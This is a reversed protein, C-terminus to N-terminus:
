QVPRRSVLHDIGRGGVFGRRYGPNSFVSSCAAGCVHGCDTVHHDLSRHLLAFNGEGGSFSHGGVPVVLIASLEMGYGALPDGLSMFSARAIGALRCDGRRFRLDSLGSERHQDRVTESGHSKGRNCSCVQGILHPESYSRLHHACCRSGLVGDSSGLVVAERGYWNMWEPMSLEPRLDQNCFIWRPGASSRNRPLSQAHDSYCHCAHNKTQVVLYGNIAGLFAGVIMTIGFAPFFPCVMSSWCRRM